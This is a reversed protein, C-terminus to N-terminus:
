TWDKKEENGSECYAQQGRTYGCDHATQLSIQRRDISGLAPPISSEQGVPKPISIRMKRKGLAAHPVRKADHDPPM